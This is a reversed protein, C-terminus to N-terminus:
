LSPSPFSNKNWAFSSTLKAFSSFLINKPWVRINLKLFIDWQRVRVNHCLRERKWASILEHIRAIWNDRGDVSREGPPVRPRLRAIVMGGIDGLEPSPPPTVMRLLSPLSLPPSFRKLKKPLFFYAGFYPVSRWLSGFLLHFNTLVWFFSNLFPLSFECTVKTIPKKNKGKIKRGSM